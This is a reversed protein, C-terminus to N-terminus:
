NSILRTRDRTTVASPKLSSTLSQALPGDAPAISAPEGGRREQRRRLELWLTVLGLSVGRGEGGEGETEVLLLKM